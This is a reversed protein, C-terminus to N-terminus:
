EPNFTSWDGGFGNEDTYDSFQEQFESSQSSFNNPTVGLESLRDWKGVEASATPTPSPDTDPGDENSTFRPSPGDDDNQVRPGPVHPGLGFLGGGRPRDNTIRDDAVASRAIGATAPGCDLQAHLNAPVESELKQCWVQTQATQQGVNADSVGATGYGGAVLFTPCAAFALMAIIKTPKGSYGMNRM